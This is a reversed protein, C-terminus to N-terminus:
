VADLVVIKLINSQARIEDLVNEPVVEDTEMVMLALEGQQKRSVEMHSINMRHRTMVQAISAITGYQDVHFILVSPQEGTLKITFGDIETIRIAGGGVSAGEMSFSQGEAELQILLTNPHVPTQESTSFHVGIGREKAIQIAQPIRADHSTFDLLGGIVAVDTAHGRYTQAFSGYFTIDIKEPERGFMSRAMRGLQVAGATHSSSPGVMVPGIIEFVSKYKM